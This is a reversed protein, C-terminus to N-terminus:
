RRLHRYPQDRFRHHRAASHNVLQALVGVIGVVADTHDTPHVGERRSPHPDSAQSREGLWQQVQVSLEILLQGPRGYIHVEHVEVLRGMTVAFESKDSGAHPELALNQDSVPLVRLNVRLHACPHAGGAGPVIRLIQFDSAETVVHAVDSDRFAVLDVRLDFQTVGDIPVTDSVQHLGDLLHRLRFDAFKCSIVVIGVSHRLREALSPALTLRQELSGSNLDAQPMKELFGIRMGEGVRKFIQM